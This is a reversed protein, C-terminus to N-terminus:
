PGFESEGDQQEQHRHPVHPPERQGRDDIGHMRGLRGEVMRQQLKHQGQRDEPRPPMKIQGAQGVQPPEGRVHVAKHRHARSRREQVAQPIRDLDRKPMRALHHVQIILGGGHQNRQNREALVKLGNRPEAHGIGDSREHVQGRFGGQAQGSGVLRILGFLDRDLNHAHPVIQLHFRAPPDRNVSHYCVARGAHVGGHQSALGHGNRYAHATRHRAARHVRGTRKNHPGLTNTRIRGQRPDDLQHAFRLAGLRGNGPQGVVHAENEHRGDHRQRDNGTGSPQVPPM